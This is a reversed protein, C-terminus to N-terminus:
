PTCCLLAHAAGPTGISTFAPTSIGAVYQGARCQGKYYGVDWDPAAYAASDGNYFVQSDCSKHTVSAPCCLVSTLVGNGSAQSIGAVYEDAACETKYSGPDWDTGNDMDGRNDDSRVARAYCETGSNGYAAQAAGCEVDESWLQGPVRSVGYMPAGLACEGKYDGVAWDGLSPPANGPYGFDGNRFVGVTSTFFEQTFTTSSGTPLTGYSSTSTEGTIYELGFAQSVACSPIHAEATLANAASYTITGAGSQFTAECLDSWGVIDLQLTLIPTPETMKTSVTEYPTGLNDRAEYTAQTVNDHSDTTLLWTFTTGAPITLPNTQAVNPAGMFQPNPAIPPASDKSNNAWQQSFGDVQQNVEIVFQQWNLQSSTLGTAPGNANLQMSFGANGTGQTVTGGCDASAVVIDQTVNLTVKVGTLPQCNNNALTYNSDSGLPIPPTAQAHADAISVLVFGTSLM